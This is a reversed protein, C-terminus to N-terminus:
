DNYGDEDYNDGDEDYNDEEYNSLYYSENFSKIVRSLLLADVLKFLVLAVLVGLMIELAAILSFKEEM